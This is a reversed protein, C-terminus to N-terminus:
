DVERNMWLYNIMVFLKNVGEDDEQEIDYDRMNFEDIGEQIFERYTQENEAQPEHDCIRVDLLERTIGM